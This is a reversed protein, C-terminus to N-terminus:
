PVPDYGGPHWPNCRVIRRLGLWAGKCFGYKRLAELTYCSCSPTFRCAPPLIPALVIQYLRILGIALWALPSRWTRAPPADHVSMAKMVM